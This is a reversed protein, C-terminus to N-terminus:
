CSRSSANGAKASAIFTYLNFDNGRFSIVVAKYKQHMMMVWSENKPMREFQRDTMLKLLKTRENTRENMGEM